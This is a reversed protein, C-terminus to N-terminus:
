GLFLLVHPKTERKEGGVSLVHLGQDSEGAGAVPREAVAGRDGQGDEVVRGFGGIEVFHEALAGGLLALV